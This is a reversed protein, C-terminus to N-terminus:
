RSVVVSFFWKTNKSYFNLVKGETRNGANTDLSVSVAVDLLFHDGHQMEQVSYRWITHM